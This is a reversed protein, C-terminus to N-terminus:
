ATAGLRGKHSYVFVESPKEPDCGPLSFRGNRIKLENMGNLDFRYLLYSRCLLVADQVPKGDPDVVFGTRAVGRCLAITVDRPPDGPKVDLAVLGDPYYRRNPRVDESSLEHETIEVHLYDPAEGKVLLHGRGPPVVMQFKGDADSLPYEERGG